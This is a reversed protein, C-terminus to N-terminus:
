AADRLMVKRRCWPSRRGQRRTRVVTTGRANPSTRWNAHSRSTRGGRRGRGTALRTSRPRHACRRARHARACEGAAAAILVSRMLPHRFAITGPGLTTLRNEVAPALIEPDARMELLISAAPLTEAVSDIDNLAAVLLATRTAIPLTAGRATLARELRETLPLVTAPEELESVATPLETM